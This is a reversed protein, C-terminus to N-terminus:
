IVEPFGLFLTNITNAFDGVCDIFQGLVHDTIPRLQDGVRGKALALLVKLNDLSLVRFVTLPTRSEVVAFGTVVLDIHSESPLSNDRHLIKM